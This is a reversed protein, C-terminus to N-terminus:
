KKFFYGRNINTKRNNSNKHRNSYTNNNIVSTSYINSQKIRDTASMPINYNRSDYKKTILKDFGNIPIGKFNNENKNIIKSPIVKQSNSKDKSVISNNYNINEININGNNNLENINYNYNYNFNNTYNNFNINLSNLNNDNPYKNNINNFSKKSQVRLNNKINVEINFHNEYNTNANYISNCRVHEQKKKKQFDKKGFSNINNNNIYNNSKSNNSQNIGNFSNTTNKFKQFTKILKDYEINKKHPSLLNTQCICNIITNVLNSNIGLNSNSTTVGIFGNSNKKNRTKSANQTKKELFEDNKKSPPYFSKRGASPIKKKKLISSISNSGKDSTEKMIQKIKQIKNSLLEIMEANIQYKSNSERASLPDRESSQINGSKNNRVSSTKKTSESGNKPSSKTKFKDFLNFKKESLKKTIRKEFNFISNRIKNDKEKKQEQLNKLSLVERKNKSKNKTKSKVEIFYNNNNLNKNDDNKNYNEQNFNKSETSSFNNIIKCSINDDLYNDIFEKIRNKNDIEENIQKSKHHSFIRNEFNTPIKSMSIQKKHNISNINSESNKPKTGYSNIISMAKTCSSSSIKNNSDLNSASIIRKSQSNNKENNYLFIHSIKDDFDKKKNNYSNDIDNENDNNNEINIKRDNNSDKINDLDISDVFSSNIDKHILIDKYKNIKRKQNNNGSGLLANILNNKLNNHKNKNHNINKRKMFNNNEIDLSRRDNSVNSKANNISANIYMNKNDYNNRSTQYGKPKNKLRNQSKTKYSTITNKNQNTTKFPDEFYTKINNSNVHCNESNRNLNDKQINNNKEKKIQKNGSQNALFNGSSERCTFQKVYYNESTKENSNLNKICQYTQSNNKYLQKSIDKDKLKEKFNKVNKNLKKISEIDKIDFYNNKQNNCSDIFTVQTSFNNRKKHYKNNETSERLLQKFSNKNQNQGINNSSNKRGILAMGDKKHLANQARLNYGENLLITNKIKLLDNNNGKKLKSMKAIKKKTNNKNNNIKKEAKEINNLLKVMDFDTEGKSAETSIGFYQKVGSTDTQNLISDFAQTTFVTQEKEQEILGNKINEEKDEQEQQIDIVRQKRQINKYIYQSEPLIVYNPFIVSCSIYYEYIKPLLNLSEKKKYYQQLFESIDGKILYDKFEAVIHTSENHIIEDIVKINYFDKNKCNQSMFNCYAIKEISKMPLLPHNGILLKVIKENLNRDFCSNENSKEFKFNLVNYSNTKNSNHYSSNLNSTSQPSKENSDDM